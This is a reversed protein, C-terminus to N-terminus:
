DDDVCKRALKITSEAYKNYANIVQKDNEKSIIFVIGKLIAILLEVYLKHYTM